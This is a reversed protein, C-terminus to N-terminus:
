ALARIDLDESLRRTANATVTAIATATAGDAAALARFRRRPRRRLWHEAVVVGDPFSDPDLGVDVTLAVADEIEHCQVDHPRRRSLM